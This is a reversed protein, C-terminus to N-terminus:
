LAHLHLGRSDYTVWGRQWNNHKSYPQELRCLCGGEVSSHTGHLSTVYRQSLRHSHGQCCDFGGFKAINRDVTTSGYSVGHQVILSGIRHFQPYPVVTWGELGLLESLNLSRLGLLHPANKTLYKELREEHNGLLFVRRCKPGAAAEFRRLIAAGEDLEAQPESVTRPNSLFRSLAEFDLLDGNLVFVEPRFEKTARICAAVAAEDHYPVHVDGCILVRPTQKM